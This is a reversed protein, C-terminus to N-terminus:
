KEGFCYAITFGAGAVMCGLPLPNVTNAIGFVVAFLGLFCAFRKIGKM